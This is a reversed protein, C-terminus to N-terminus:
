LPTARRRLGRQGVFYFGVALAVLGLVIDLIHDAISLHTLSIFLGQDNGYVPMYLAPILGLLGILTYVVGFVRNYTISQGVFAAAIGLLGTILYFVNGFTDADFIGLVAKVGTSNEVPTLFGVIGLVTFIIGIILAVIRNPTWNARTERVM